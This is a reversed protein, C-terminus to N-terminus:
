PDPQPEPPGTPGAEDVEGGEDTPSTAPEPPPPTREPGTWNGLAFLNIRRPGYQSTVALVVEVRMRPDAYTSILRAAEGELIAVDAPLYLNGPEVGPGGFGLLLRFDKDFIQVNEFAADVVYIRGASDVAVGKPRSFSGPRDGVAGFHGLLEGDATFKQVRFNGTDTVYLNGEVDLALNTPFTFQGPSSGPGGIKFRVEGTRRDLVEIEHGGADCVYLADGRVAVDTPRFQGQTGYARVFGDRADYELVQERGSDAVFKHGEPTVEINIPVKVRGAGNDGELHRLTGAAIDVGVVHGWGTDAVLIRGGDSAVGYPKRFARGKEDSGAVFDEFGSTGGFDEESSFAALFQLRPQNPLPPYFVAPGEYRVSPAACGTLGAGSLVSVAFLTAAACAVRWLSRAARRPRGSPVSARM